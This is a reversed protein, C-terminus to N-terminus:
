INCFIRSAMVARIQLFHNNRVTDPDDAPPSKLAALRQLLNAKRCTQRLNVFVHKEKAPVQFGNHNGFPHFLDPFASEPVAGEAPEGQRLSQFADPFFGKVAACGSLNSDRVAHFFDPFARERLSGRQDPLAFPFSPPL